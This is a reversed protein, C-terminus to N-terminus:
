AFILDDTFNIESVVKLKSIPITIMLEKLKAELIILDTTSYVTANADSVFQWYETTSTTSSLQLIKYIM